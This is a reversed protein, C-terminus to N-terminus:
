FSPPHDMAKMKGISLVSLKGLGECKDFQIWGLVDCLLVGLAFFTFPIGLLFLYAV